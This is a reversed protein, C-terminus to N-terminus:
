KIKVGQSDYIGIIEPNGTSIGKVIAVDSRTVFIQTRFAMIVTDSVKTNEELTFYYDISELSPEQVNVLKSDELSNGVLAKKLNSRRYYGGGYCYSQSNLNHSVESVYVMAPKEFSDYDSHYPTTGTLGHGPEAHTGGFGKILKISETCSASPLNLQEINVGINKLIEKAKLVTEVNHTEKIKKDKDDYLFCPFSTLGYININPLNKISNVAEELEELYFGGYQAPYLMDGESIVRLTINQIIGLKGAVESIEKAKEISYISITEPRSSLIIEMDARPIQVLHGVHGLKIGNEIHRKADKYDVAVAGEFGMDILAKSILPNRGIQKGMFYLKVGYKDAEKKMMLANELIMDYDLVYTDPSILGKKHLHFATKILNPNREITKELFM